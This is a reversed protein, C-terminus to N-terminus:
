PNSVIRGEYDLLAPFYVLLDVAQLYLKCKGLLIKKYQNFLFTENKKHSEYNKIRQEEPTLMEQLFVPPESKVLVVKDKTLKPHKPKPGKPKSTQRRKRLITLQNRIFGKEYGM